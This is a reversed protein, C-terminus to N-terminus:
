TITLNGVASKSVFTTNAVTCILSVCDYRNGSAVSGGTGVTSSVSGIQINQGAAQSIVWGGSSNGVVDVIQGVAATAPLTYTVLSSTDNTVYGNGVAMAQTATVVNNWTMGGGSPVGYSIYGTSSNYYVVDATTAASLSPLNIGSGGQLSLTGAASVSIPGSSTSTLAIDASSIQALTSANIAVTPSQLNVSKGSAPALLNLSGLTSQITVDGTAATVGFGANFQWAGTITEPTAPNFGSPAGVTLLGTSSNWYVVDSTVASGLNPMEITSNTFDWTGSVTHAATPDFPLDNVITITGTTPLFEIGLGAEISNFNLVSGTNNVYLGSGTGLNNGTSSGGSGNAIWSLDGQADTSLVYGSVPSVPLTYVVDSFAANPAKLTITDGLANTLILFPAPNTTEPIFSWNGEVLTINYLDVNKIGFTLSSVLAMYTPSLYNGQDVFSNLYGPTILTEFDDNTEFYVFKPNQGSQGVVDLVFNLIAM